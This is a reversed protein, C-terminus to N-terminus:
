VAAVGAAGALGAGAGVSEEAEGAVGVGAVGAAEVSVGAGSVFLGVSGAAEVGASVVSDVGGAAAFVSAVGASVLGAAGAGTSFASATGSFVVGTWFASFTAGARGFVGGGAGSGAIEGPSDKYICPWLYRYPFPTGAFQSKATFLKSDEAARALELACLVSPAIYEV